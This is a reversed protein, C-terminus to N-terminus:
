QEDFKQALTSFMSQVKESETGAKKESSDQASSFYDKDIDNTTAESAKEELEARVSNFKTLYLREVTSLDELVAGAYEADCNSAEESLIEEIRNVAENSALVHDEFEIPFISELKHLTIVEQITILSEMFEDIFHPIDSIHVEEKFSELLEFYFGMEETAVQEPNIDKMKDAVFFRLTENHDFNMNREITVLRRLIHYNPGGWHGEKEFYHRGSGFFRVLTCEGLADFDNTVKQTVKKAFSKNIAIKKVYPSEKQSFLRFIQEIFIASAILDESLLPEKDLYNTLFDQISPNQFDIYENGHDDRGITIFTSELEKLARLFLSHSYSVEYRRGKKTTFESVAKELDSLFIPGGCAALNILVCKSLDTIKTEFVNEWISTPNDLYAVFSDVFKDPPIERWFDRQTVIEIIRPSYNRHGVIRLYNEKKMLPEIYSRPLPSFFLHNYLIQARVMFSYKSLDLICKAIDIGSTELSDYKERAQKLIFERTTMILLKDRAARIKEIFKIIRQDENKRLRDELFNRGLFDDYLFIQERWEKHAAYADDIDESLFIFDKFGKGLLHYTLIRALTTKGIGPIGSIIVFRNKELISLAEAFSDGQVYIKSNRRIAEEEFASTNYVKSAVIRELIATSTMWLKVHSQEIKKNDRLLKNIEECGYIDSPSKLYPALIGMIKDKRKPTLRVSTLLFYNGIPKHRDLTKREKRLVKALDAFSAYRKCQATFFKGDGVFRLDIGQDPGPGFSEVLVGFQKSLLDCCLQEFEYPSLNLFDYM